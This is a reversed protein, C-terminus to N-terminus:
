YTPAGTYDYGYVPPKKEKLFSPYIRNIKKNRLEKKHSKIVGSTTFTIGHDAWESFKKPQVYPDLSAPLEHFKRERLFYYSQRNPEKIEVSTKYNYAGDYKMFANPGSTPTSIVLGVPAKSVFASSYKIPSKLAATSISAKPGYDPTNIEINATTNVKYEDRKSTRFVIPVVTKLKEDFDPALKCGSTKLYFPQNYLPDDFRAKNNWKIVGNGGTYRKEENRKNNKNENYETNEGISNLSSVLSNETNNKYKKARASHSLSLSENSDGRGTPTNGFPMVHLSPGFKGKEYRSTDYEGPGVLCAPKESYYGEVKSFKGGIVEGRAVRASVGDDPVEHFCDVIRNMVPTNIRYKAPKNVVDKKFVQGNNKENAKETEIYNGKHDIYICYKSGAAAAEKLPQIKSISNFVIARRNLSDQIPRDELSDYIRNNNNEVNLRQNTLYLKPVKM